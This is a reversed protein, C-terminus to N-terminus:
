RGQELERLRDLDIMGTDFFSTEDLAAPQQQGYGPGGQQQYPIQPPYQQDYGGQQGYDYGQEQGYGQQPAYPDAYGAQQAYDQQGPQQPSYGDDYSIYNIKRGGVGGQENIMKFVAAETRAIVGYASAPGSYAATNGIKLETASVGTTDEARATRSAALTAAMGALVARRHM